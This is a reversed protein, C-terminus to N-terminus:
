RELTARINNGDPGRLSSEIQNRFYLVIEHSFINGQKVGARAAQIKAAMQQQQEVLRQSSKSSKSPPGAERLRLELYHSVRKGFDAVSRYRAAPRSQIRTVLKFASRRCSGTNHRRVPSLRQPLGM